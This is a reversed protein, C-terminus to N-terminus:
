ATARSSGYADRRCSAYREVISNIAGEAGVFDPHSTNVFALEIQVLNQIMTRSPSRCENLLETVAAVVRERLVAFRLLEKSELQSVIRVLEEYVADM